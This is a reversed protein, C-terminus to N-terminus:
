PMNEHVKNVVFLRPSRAPTPKTGDDFGGPGEPQRDCFQALLNSTRNQLMGRSFVVLMPGALGSGDVRTQRNDSADM